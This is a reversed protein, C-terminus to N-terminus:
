LSVLNPFLLIRQGYALPIKLCFTAGGRLVARPSPPTGSPLWPRRSHAFAAELKMRLKECPKGGVQSQKESWTDDGSCSIDESAM